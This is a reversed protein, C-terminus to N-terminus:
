VVRIRGPAGFNVQLQSLSFPLQTEIDVFAFYHRPFPFFGFGLCFLFGFELYIRARM